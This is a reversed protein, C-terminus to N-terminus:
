PVTQDVGRLEGPPPSGLKVKARGTGSLQLIVRFACARIARSAELVTPVMIGVLASM